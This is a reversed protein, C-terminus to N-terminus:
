RGKKKKEVERKKVAAREQAALKKELIIKRTQEVAEDYGVVEIGAECLIKRWDLAM